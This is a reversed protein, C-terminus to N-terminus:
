NQEIMMKTPNVIRDIEVGTKGSGSCNANTGKERHQPLIKKPDNTWFELDCDPCRVKWQIRDVEM